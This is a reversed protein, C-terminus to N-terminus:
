CNSGYEEYGCLHRQPDSAIREIAVASNAMQQETYAQDFPRVVHYEDFCGAPCTLHDVITVGAQTDKLGDDCYKSDQNESICVDVYIAGGHSDHTDFESQGHRDCDHAGEALFCHTAAYGVHLENPRSLPVHPDDGHDHDEHGDTEEYFLASNGGHYWGCQQRYEGDDHCEDRWRQADYRQQEGEEGDRGALDFLPVYNPRWDDYVQTEKCAKDNPDYEDPCEHASAVQTGVLVAGVMTTILLAALKRHM